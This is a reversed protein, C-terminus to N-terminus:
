QCGWYYGLHIEIYCGLTIVWLWNTTFWYTSNKRMWSRTARLHQQVVASFHWAVTQVRRSSRRDSKVKRRKCYLWYNEVCCEQCSVRGAGACAPLGLWHLPSQRPGLRHYPYGGAEWGRRMWRWRGVRLVGSWECHWPLVILSMVWMAICKM